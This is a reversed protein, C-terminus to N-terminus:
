APLPHQEVQLIREDVDHQRFHSLEVVQLFEPRQTRRAALGRALVLMGIPLPEAGGRPGPHQRGPVLSVLSAQDHVNTDQSDAVPLWRPDVGGNGAIGPPQRGGPAKSDVDERCYLAAAALARCLRSIEFAVAEELFETVIKEHQQILAAFRQGADLQRSLEGRPLVVPAIQTKGNAPSVAHTISDPLARIEAPGQGRQSQGMSKGANKTDLLQISGPRQLGSVRVM